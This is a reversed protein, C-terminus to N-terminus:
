KLSKIHICIYLFLSLELGFKQSYAWHINVGRIHLMIKTMRAALQLCCITFNLLEGESNLSQEKVVYFGRLKVKFNSYNNIDKFLDRRNM